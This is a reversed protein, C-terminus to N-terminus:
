HCVFWFTRTREGSRCDALLADTDAVKRVSDLLSYRMAAKRWVSCRDPSPWDFAVVSHYHQRLFDLITDIDAGFRGVLHPHFELFLCPRDRRLIGEAGQLVDWEFGDVDVKIFDVQRQALDDLRRVEVNCVGKGSEVLGSNIGGKLGVVDNRRGVAVDLVSVNEFGNEGVNFRLELLNEPSPEICTIHGHRGVRRQFMLLYYGINAGVDVVHM